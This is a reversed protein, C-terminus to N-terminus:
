ESTSTDQLFYTSVVYRTGSLVPTTRHTFGVGSPFLLAAGVTPRVVRGYSPFNLDGGEYNDNLFVVMSLVRFANAMTCERIDVHENHMDGVSYRNIAYAEDRTATVLRDAVGYRSLAAGCVRFLADEFPRFRSDYMASVPLSDRRIFPRPEEEGRRVDLEIRRWDGVDEAIRILDACWPCLDRILVIGEPGLCSHADAKGVELEGGYDLRGM